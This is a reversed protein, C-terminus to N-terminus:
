LSEPLIRVFIDLEKKWDAVASGNILDRARFTKEEKKTFESSFLTTKSLTNIKKLALHNLTV